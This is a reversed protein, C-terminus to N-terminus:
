PAASAPSLWASLDRGFRQELFEVQPAYQTVLAKHIEEPPAEFPAANVKKGADLFDLSEYPSLGLFQVINAVQETAAGFLDEYFLYLIQEKPYVSEWNEICQRYDGRAVIQPAFVSDHLASLSDVDSPRVGHDAWLSRRTGSWAREIPNRMIFILRAEPMRHYVQQIRERSLLMYAPTIDGKHKNKGRRFVLSYWRWSAELALDFHPRAKVVQKPDVAEDLFHVEKFWPLYVDPHENLTRFLWSTGSRPAGICLFDPYSRPVRWDLAAWLRLLRKYQDAVSFSLTSQKKVAHIKDFM